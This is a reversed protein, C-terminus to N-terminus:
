HFNHGEIESINPCVSFGDPTPLCIRWGALNRLKPAKRLKKVSREAKGTIQWGFELPIEIMWVGKGGKVEQLQLHEKIHCVTYSRNWTRPMTVPCNNASERPKTFAWLIKVWFAIAQPLNLTNPCTDVLIVKDEREWNMPNHNPFFFTHAYKM